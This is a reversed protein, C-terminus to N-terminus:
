APMGAFPTVYNNGIASDPAVAARTLLNTKRLNTATFYASNAFFYTASPTEVTRNGFIPHQQGDLGMFSGAHDKADDSLPDPGLVVKVHDLYARQLSPGGNVPYWVTLNYSPELYLNEMYLYRARNSACHAFDGHTGCTAGGWHFCASNLLYIDRGAAWDVALSTHQRLQFIDTALRGCHIYCGELCFSKAFSVHFISNETGSWYRYHSQPQGSCNTGEWRYYGHAQPIRIDFGRAHFRAVKKKFHFPRTFVAGAIPKLFLDDGEYYDEVLYSQTSGQLPQVACDLNSSVWPIYQGGAVLPLTAPDLTLVRWSSSKPPIFANNWVHTAKADDVAGKADISAERAVADVPSADLRLGDALTSTDPSAERSVFRDSGPGGVGGDWSPTESGCGPIFSSGLALGLAAGGAEALWHRRSFSRPIPLRM